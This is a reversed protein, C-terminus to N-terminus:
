SQRVRSAARPAFQPSLAYVAWIAVAAVLVWRIAEGVVPQVGLAGFSTPIAFWYYLGAATAALVPLAVASSVRLRSVVFAVIVGSAAAHALITTYVGAAQIATTDTTRFYGIVFGPFGAAFAGFASALWASSRRAPGLVQAISKSPSLDICGRPTCLTCDHCRPNSVGILPRQGYLREVPLLPCLTNCFGAKADFRVGLAAAGLACGLLAVLLLDARDNLGIHRAPVLAVLLVIGSAGSYRTVGDPLRRDGIGRGMMNLSALPCVARWAGPAVLFSLPLLPVVLNWFLQLSIAPWIVLATATSALGALAIAQAIRWTGRSRVDSSV